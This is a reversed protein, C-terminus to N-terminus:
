SVAELIGTGNPTGGTYRSLVILTEGIRDRMSRLYYRDNSADIIFIDHIGPKYPRTGNPKGDADYTTVIDPISYMITGANETGYVTNDPKIDNTQNNVIDKHEAPMVLKTFKIDGTYERMQRNYNPQQEIPLPSLITITTNWSKITDHVAEKMFEIDWANLM